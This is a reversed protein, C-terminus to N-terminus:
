QDNANLESAFITVGSDVGVILLHNFMLWLCAKKGPNSYFAVCCKGDLM